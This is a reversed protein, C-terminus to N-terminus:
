SFQSFQPPCLERLVQINKLIARCENGEFQGGHYDVKKVNIADLWQKSNVWVKSLEDYIHNVPGLMLHLEPPPIVHIVPTEDDGKVLTPNVVNGFDKAKNTDVNADRFNRYMNNLSGITRQNGKENLHYKDTDCWCCPHLSSHSMLGLLINLLKLDSAITCSSYFLGM